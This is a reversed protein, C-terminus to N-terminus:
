RSIECVERQHGVPMFTKSKEWEGWRKRPMRSSNLPDKGTSRERGGYRAVGRAQGLAEGRAVM